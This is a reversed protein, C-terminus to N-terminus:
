LEFEACAESWIRILADILLRAMGKGMRRQALALIATAM